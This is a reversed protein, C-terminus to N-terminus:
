QTRGQNRKWKRWEWYLRAGKIPHRRLVALFFTRPRKGYLANNVVMGVGERM